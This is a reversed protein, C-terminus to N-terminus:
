GDKGNKQKSVSKSNWKRILYLIIGLTFGIFLSILTPIVYFPLYDLSLDIIVINGTIYLKYSNLIGQDNYIAIIKFNKSPIGPSLENKNIEVNLTPLVRNDVDYWDTLKLGGIYEGVPIPFLFPVYSSYQSFNITQSYDGPNKLYSLDSDYDKLGWINEFTWDWISFNINIKTENVNVYNIKWKMSKGQSLNNFMGSDNWTNGFISEMEIQNCINCKWILEQNEYIGSVYNTASANSLILNFLIFLLFFNLYLRTQKM